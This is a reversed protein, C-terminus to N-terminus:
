FPEEGDDDATTAPPRYGHHDLLTQIRRRTENGDGVESLADSRDALLSLEDGPIVRFRELRELWNHVKTSSDADRLRDVTGAVM